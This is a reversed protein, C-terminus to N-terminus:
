ILEIIIQAESVLYDAQENTLKKGRLAEVQDIFDTLKHIAGNENGMDLLHLADKLKSVLSGETGKDLNWSKITEILRQTRDEATGCLVTGDIDQHPMSNLTINFLRSSLDLTCIGIKLCEFTVVALVGSGSDVDYQAIRAAYLYGIRLLGTVDMTITPLFDGNAVSIAKLLQPNWSLTFEFGNLGEVDEITIYVAFQDGIKIPQTPAKVVVKPVGPETVFPSYYYNLGFHKVSIGIDAMDVKGNNTIDADPNYLGLGVGWPENSCMGYSKSELALDVVTIYDDVGIGKAVYTSEFYSGHYNVNGEEHYYPPGSFSPAVIMTASLMICIAFLVVKSKLKL